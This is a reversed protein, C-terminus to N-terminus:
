RGPVHTRYASYPGGPKLTSHEPRLLIRARRLVFRGAVTKLIDNFLHDYVVDRFAQEAPAVESSCIQCGLVIRRASPFRM